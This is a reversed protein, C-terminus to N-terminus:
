ICQKLATWYMLQEADAAIGRNPILGAQLLAGPASSQPATVGYEAACVGSPVLSDTVQGMIELSVILANSIPRPRLFAAILCSYYLQPADYM